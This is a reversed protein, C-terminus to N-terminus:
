MGPPHNGAPSSYSFQEGPSEERDPLLRGAVPQGGLKETISDIVEEVKHSISDPVSDKALDRVLGLATGIALGKLQSIEKEFTQGIRHLVGPEDPESSRAPESRPAGDYEAFQRGNRLGLREEDTRPWSEAFERRESVFGGYDESSRRNLLFGGLFGVGVAGLVMTWPRAAVQQRVDFADKVSAVTDHVSEKVSHVTDHVAEKVSGVTENVATSADQVTNVVKQELRELKETLATRTEDMQQRIMEPDNEM